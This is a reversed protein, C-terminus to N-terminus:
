KNGGYSEGFVFFDNPLYDPFLLFWQRLMEYLDNAMEDMNTVFKDSTHSFGTYWIYLLQM